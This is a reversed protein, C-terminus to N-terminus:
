IKLDNLYMCLSIIKYKLHDQIGVLAYWELCVVGGESESGVFELQELSCDNGDFHSVVAM